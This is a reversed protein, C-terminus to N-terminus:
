SNRYRSIDNQLDLLNQHEEKLIQFEAFIDAANGIQKQLETNENELKEIEDRFDVLMKELQRILDDYEREQDTKDQQQLAWFENAVQLYKQRYHDQSTM